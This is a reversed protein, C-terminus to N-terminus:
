FLLRELYLDLARITKKILTKRHKRYEVAVRWRRSKRRPSGLLELDRELKTPYAKLLKFCEEELEKVSAKEASPQFPLDKESWCPLSRAVALLDGDLFADGSDVAHDYFYYADHLGAIHFASLFSDKHIRANGSFELKEWENWM